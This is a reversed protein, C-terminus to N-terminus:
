GAVARLRRASSQVPGPHHADPRGGQHPCFGDAAPMAFRRSFRVRTKDPGKSSGGDRHFYGLSKMYKMPCNGSVRPCWPDSITTLPTLVIITLSGNLVGKAATATSLIPRRRAARVWMGKSCNM